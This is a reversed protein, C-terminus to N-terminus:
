PLTNATFVFLLPDGSNPIAFMVNGNTVLPFNGGDLSGSGDANVSITKLGPVNPV